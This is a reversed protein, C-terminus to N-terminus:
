SKPDIRVQPYKTKVDYRDGHEARIAKTDLRTSEIERITVKHKDTLYIGEGAIGLLEEKLDDEMQEFSKKKMRVDYLKETLEEVARNRTEHIPIPDKPADEKYHVHRYPGKWCFGTKECPPLRDVRVWEEIEEMRDTFQEISKFPRDVDKILIKGSDRSKIVVTAKKNTAWMAGSLQWSYPPDHKFFEEAGMAEAEAFRAKGLAKVELIRGAQGLVSLHGADLHGQIVHGPLVELEVPFQLDRVQYGQGKLQKIVDAEHLHGERLVPDDKAEPM